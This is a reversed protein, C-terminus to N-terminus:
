CCLHFATGMHIAPWGVLAFSSVLSGWTAWNTTSRPLAPEVDLIARLRWAAEDSGGMGPVVAPATPKVVSLLASALAVQGATRAAEADAHRERAERYAKFARESWPALDHLFALLTFMAPDRAAAHAREHHLMAALENDGMRAVAGSSVFVTARRWGAVFCECTPIHLERVTIGAAGAAAALRPSPPRSTRALRAMEQERKAARLAARGIIAAAVLLSAHFQTFHAWNEWHGHAVARVAIMGSITLVTLGPTAALIAAARWDARTPPWNRACRDGIWAALAPLLILPWIQSLSGEFLIALVDYLGPQRAMAAGGIM